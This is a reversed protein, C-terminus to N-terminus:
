EFKCKSAPKIKPKPATNFNYDMMPSRASPTVFSFESTVLGDAKQATTSSAPKSLNNGETKEM